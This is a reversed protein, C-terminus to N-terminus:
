GSGEQLRRRRADERELMEIVDMRRWERAKDAATIVAPQGYMHHTRAHIDAGADLLMQIVETPATACASMLATYGGDDTQNVNAGAELLVPVIHYANCFLAHALPSYEDEGPRNVDAGHALLFTVLEMSWREIALSLATSRELHATQYNVDAGHEVLYKAMQEQKLTCATLLPTWGHRNQANVDAGAKVLREVAAMDHECAEVLAQSM